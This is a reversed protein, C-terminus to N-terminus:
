CQPIPVDIVGAAADYTVGTFTTPICPNEVPGPGPSPTHPGPPAPNPVNVIEFAEYATRNYAQATIEVRHGAVKRLSLVRFWEFPENQPSRFPEILESVVKVAGYRKVDIAFEVPVRFRIRLNNDTGGEDFEGFKLLRRGLKVAEPLFRVGFAAYQRPIPQLFGNGLSRGALAQQDPDDVTIPRAQDFNSADEFTLVIENTLKDNPVWSVQIAPQGGDWVINRLEGKDYFVPADDLEEETFATFLTTSYLGDDQFPVAIAGSRCIDVIQEAAPRGELVADLTTRRHTYNIVEGDPFTHSYTVNQLCQTSTKVWAPIRFRSTPYSLGFTQNTYTEMLCWVRDNTWQRVFGTSGSHTLADNPVVELTQSTSQWKLICKWPHVGSAASQVFDIQIPYATAATAAFPGSHEGFGGNNIIETSNITVVVGDDHDCIITYTESHDFTIFGTWRVSFATAPMGEMPAGYTLPFNISHDIREARKDTFNTAGFYEGKLGNGAATDNWVAVKRYGDVDCTMTLSQPTVNLANVWGYRAMIHATSSYNSVDVAYHTPPQGRDGLRVALHLQEIYKENVKINRINRVPGECVEWVAAVWGRDPNSENAERRFLIQQAGRFHKTGFIVPIPTTLTTTNGKTKALWGSRQDTITAAADTRWGGFFRGDTTGLRENCFTVDTQPCALWPLGTNPDNTGITGGPLHANSPCLNTEIADLTPLKGGYKAPCEKGKIRPPLMQERSRYGNTAYTEIRRWGFIPPAQLQGFWKSELVDFEPYYWFIECRVGSGFQRFRDSIERDIDDFVIPITDTRLDPNIDFEHFPDEPDPFVIRPEVPRLEIRHFPPMEHLASGAYYRTEAPDNADWEVAIVQCVAVRRSRAAAKMATLTSPDIAM